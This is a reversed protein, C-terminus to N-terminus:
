CHIHSGNITASASVRMLKASGPADPYCSSTRLKLASPEFSCPELSCAGRASMTESLMAHLRARGTLTAGQQRQRRLYSRAEDM